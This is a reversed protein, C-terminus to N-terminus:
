PITTSAQKENIVYVKPDPTPETARGAFFMGVGYCVSVISAFIVVFFKKLDDRGQMKMTEKDFATLEEDNFMEMGTTEDVM